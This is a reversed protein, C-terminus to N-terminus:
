RFSKGEGGYEMGCERRRKGPIITMHPPYGEIPKGGFFKEEKDKNEEKDNKAM